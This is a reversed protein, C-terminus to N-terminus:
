NGQGKKSIEFEYNGGRTELGGRLIIGESEGTIMNYNSLSVQYERAPICEDKYEAVESKQFKSWKKINM